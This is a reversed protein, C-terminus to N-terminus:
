FRKHDNDPNVDLLIGDPDLRAEVPRQRMTFTVLQRADRSDLLRTEGNVRLQVPMWADGERLVEVQVSWAGDGEHTARLEGIGYDLASTTHIWQQFFWDLDRGYALEMASRFDAETVHRLRNDQYYTRLGDRFSTEGMLDRLMRLVLSPKTYTMASYTDMDRFEASALAIPQTLSARQMEEVGAKARSWAARMDDGKEEFYWNGLFSAFGEDLWGERWENNALIGHVYQHAVEHVILGESASGDMVMMPFETGGGEIRHLNTLQPWPYRGFVNEMFALADASRQVAVGGAWASDGPQYLVHIAVGNWQGGEYAYDPAASWAFHHVDQARWRVRKRGREPLGALLGLSEPPRAAYVDRRYQPMPSGPARARDWGPDGEVPVGTAGVVQDDAVDLTVDYVGFEGYFEGQPLLPQVQWGGADFVAIRPYWQAFDYHRGRRGQRRPLTALRAEWDLEITVSAGPSLPAPLAVGAVTSDPAGRFFPTVERDQVRVSVLREFAHQDPGLDSFRRNGFELDRQAWASNPRFANLHLHFWITDLTAPANNTYRLRARASLVNTNEDLRAEIRYEVGQQFYTTDANVGQALSAVVALLLMTSMRDM